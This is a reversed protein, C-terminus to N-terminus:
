GEGRCRGQVLAVPAGHRRKLRAKEALFEISHHGYVREITAIADGLRCALSLSVCFQCRTRLYLPAPAQISDSILPQRLAALSFCRNVARCGYPTVRAIRRLEGSLFGADRVSTAM